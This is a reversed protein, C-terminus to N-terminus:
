FCIGHTHILGDDQLDGFGMFSIWVLESSDFDEVGHVVSHENEQGVVKVKLGGGDTLEVSPAPVDLQEEPPDLLVKPDFGEISCTEISDTGL